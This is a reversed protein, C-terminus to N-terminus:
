GTLQEMYKTILAPNSQIFDVNNGGIYNLQSNALAALACLKLLM